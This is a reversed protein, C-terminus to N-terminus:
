WSSKAWDTDSASDSGEEPLLGILSDDMRPELLEVKEEAVGKDVIKKRM